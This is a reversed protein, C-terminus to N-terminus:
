WSPRAQGMSPVSLHVRMGSRVTFAAVAEPSDDVTTLERVNPFSDESVTYRITRVNRMIHAGRQNDQGEHAM